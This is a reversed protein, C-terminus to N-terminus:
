PGWLTYICNTIKVTLQDKNTYHEHYKRSHTSHRIPSSASESDPPKAARAATASEPHDPSRRWQGWWGRYSRRTMGSQSVAPLFARLPGGTFLPSPLLPFTLWDIMVNSKDWIWNTEDIDVLLLTRQGESLLLWVVSVSESCYSFSLTVHSSGDGPCSSLLHQHVSSM